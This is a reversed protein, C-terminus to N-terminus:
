LSQRSRALGRMYPVQGSQQESLSCLRQVRIPVSTWNSNMKRSVQQWPIFNGQTCGVVDIKQFTVWPGLGVVEVLDLEDWRGCPSCVRGVRREALLNSTNNVINFQNM